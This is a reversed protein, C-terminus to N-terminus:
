YQIYYMCYQIILYLVLCISQINYLLKYMIYAYIIDITYKNRIQFGSFNQAYM